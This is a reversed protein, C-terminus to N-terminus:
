KLFFMKGPVYGIFIAKNYLKLVQYSQWKENYEASIQRAHEQLWASNKIRKMNDYFKLLYFTILFFCCIKVNKEVNKEIKGSKSGKYSQWTKNLRVSIQYASKDCQMRNKMNEIHNDIILLLFTIWSFDNFFM